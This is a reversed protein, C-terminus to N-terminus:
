SLHVHLEALLASRPKRMTIVLANDFELRIEVAENSEKRVCATLVSEFAALRKLVETLSSISISEGNENPPVKTRTCLALMSEFFFNFWDEDFRACLAHARDVIGAEDEFQIVVLESCIRGVIPPTETELDFLM